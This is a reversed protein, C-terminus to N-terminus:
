VLRDESYNKNQVASKLFLIYTMTTNSNSTINMLKYANIKIIKIIFGELGIRIFLIPTKM